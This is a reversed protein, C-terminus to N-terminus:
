KRRRRWLIAVETERVNKIAAPDVIVVASAPFQEPHVLEARNHINILDLWRVSVRPSQDGVEIDSTVRSSGM